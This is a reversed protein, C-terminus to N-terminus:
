SGAAPGFPRDGAIMCRQVIRRENYDSVACHQTSREDWMAVSGVEWRFRCQFQPASVHNLLFALLADSEASELGLIRQTYPWCVFLAKRGTEPHVRVVPHEVAASEDFRFIVGPEDKLGPAFQPMHLATLGDLMSRMPGSLADYAAYMNAWCTDGGVSPVQTAFLIAAMPPNEVYTQDTHWRETYRDGHMKDLIMIGPAPAGEWDVLPMEIPGFRRAFALQAEPSLEQNRFFLVLHDNLAQRLEATVEDDLEAALDVGSVEAGLAGTVPRVVLRTMTKAM